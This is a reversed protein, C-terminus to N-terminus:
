VMIELITKIEKKPVKDILVTQLLQEEVDKTKSLDNAHIEALTDGINVKNGVKTKMIIGVTDDINDSKKIRGAGLFCAMDGIEEFTM